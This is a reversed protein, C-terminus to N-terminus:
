DYDPGKAGNDPDLRSFGDSDLVLRLNKFFDKDQNGNQWKYGSHLLLTATKKYRYRYWKVMKRELNNGTGTCTSPM